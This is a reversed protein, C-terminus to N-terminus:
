CLAANRMLLFRWPRSFVLQFVLMAAPAAGWARAGAAAVAGALLPRCWLPRCPAGPPRAQQLSLAQLGAELEVTLAFSGYRPGHSPRVRLPQPARYFHFRFRAECGGALVALAVVADAPSSCM